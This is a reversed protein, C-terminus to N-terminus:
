QTMKPTDARSGCGCDCKEFLLTNNDHSNLFLNAEETMKKADAKM